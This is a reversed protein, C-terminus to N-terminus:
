RELLFVDCDDMNLFVTGMTGAGTETGAETTLINFVTGEGLGDLETEAVTGATLLVAFVEEEEEEEDEDEEVGVTVARLTDEVTTVRGVGKEGEAFLGKSGVLVPATDTSPAPLALALPLAEESLLAFLVM